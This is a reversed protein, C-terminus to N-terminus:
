RLCPFFRATALPPLTRGPPLSISASAPHPAPRPSSLCLTPRASALSSFTKPPGLCASAPHAPRASALPHLTSAPGQGLRAFAHHQDPRPSRICSATHALTLLPLTHPPSICASSCLCPSPRVLAFPHLISAPGLRAFRSSGHRTSADVTVTSCLAIKGLPNQASQWSDMSSNEIMYLFNAYNTFRANAALLALCCSVAKTSLM